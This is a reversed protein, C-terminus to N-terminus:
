RGMHRTPPAYFNTPSYTWTWTTGATPGGSMLGMSKIVIADNPYFTLGTGYSNVWKNETSSYYILSNDRVKKHENDYTYIVDGILVGNGPLIGGTWEGNEDTQILGLDAVDVAVPLNLNVLTYRPDRRGGYTVEATFIGDASTDAEAYTYSGAAGSRVWYTKGQKVTTDTSAAYTYSGETGSREFWGLGSPNMRSPGNTPVQLIPYWSMGHVPTDNVTNTFEQYEVPLTDPLTISFGRGFFGVPLETTSYDDSASNELDTTKLKMWKHNNDLWYVEASKGNQDFFEVRTSRSAATGTPWDTGFVGAMTNTWPMGQLGVLNQGELLPVRNMSYVEESALPLQQRATGANTVADQWRNHYSARYFRLKNRSLNTLSNAGGNDVQYNWNTKSTGSNKGEGSSAMFWEETGKETFTRADRWILDYEKTVKGVGDKQGAAMWFLQAGKKPPTYGEAPTLNITQMGIDALNAGALAANIDAAARVVGQTLAFKITNNTAWSATTYPGENGAKDVGVIVVVYNRDYELDFLRLTHTGMTGMGQEVYTQQASTDEIPTDKTVSTWGEGGLDELGSQLVEEWIYQDSSEKGTHRLAAEEDYEKYYVKYTEWPSLLDNAVAGEANRVSPPIAAYNENEFGSHSGPRNDDPGVDGSYWKLDFQTTPDDVHDTDAGASHADSGDSQTGFKVPTPATIDYGLAVPAVTGALADGPRDNDNDVAYLRYSGYGQNMTVSLAASRKTVADETISEGDLTLASGDGAVPSGEGPGAWEYHGIGSQTLDYVGAVLHAQAGGSRGDGDEAETFHVSLGTTDNVWPVRERETDGTGPVLRTTSKWLAVSGPAGPAVTDDDRVKLTPGVLPVANGSGDKATAQDGGRDVDDDYVHFKLKWSKSDSGSPLWQGVINTADMTNGVVPWTWSSYRSATASKTLSKPDSWGQNYATIWEVSAGEGGGATVEVAELYTNTVTFGSELSSSLTQTKVPVDNPNDSTFRRVGTQSRGTIGETQDVLDAAIVFKGDTLSAGLQSDYITHTRGSAASQQSAYGGLAYPDPDGAGQAKLLEFSPVNTAILVDLFKPTSDTVTRFKPAKVDQDLLRFNGVAGNTTMAEGADPRDHDLDTAWVNVANTVIADSEYEGKHQLYFKAAPLTWGVVASPVGAAGYDCGDAVGDAAGDGIDTTRGYTEGEVTGLTGAANTTGGSVVTHPSGQAAGTEPNLPQFQMQTVRWGSYDYFDLMFGIDAGAGASEALAHDSLSWVINTMTSTASGKLRNNASLPTGNMTVGFAGGYKRGMQPATDDDDFLLFGDTTSTCLADDTRDHDYDYVKAVLGYRSVDATSKSLPLAKTSDSLKPAALNLQASLVGNEPAGGSMEGFTSATMGVRDVELGTGTALEEAITVRVSRVSDNELSVPGATFDKWARTATFPATETKLTAGSGSLFEIKLTFGNVPLPDESTSAVVSRVRATAQASISSRGSSSITVDQYASGILSDQGTLKLIKGSETTGDAVTAGSSSLHWATTPNDTFEADTGYAINADAHESVKFTASWVETGRLSENDTNGPYTVTFEPIKQAYSEGDDEMWLGSRRTDYGTKLGDLLEVLNTWTGAKVDQDTVEGGRPASVTGLLALDQIGWSGNGAPTGGGAVEEENAVDSTARYGYLRFTKQMTGTAEQAPFTISVENTTAAVYATSDDEKVDKDLTFTVLERETRSGAVTHVKPSGVTFGSAYDANRRTVLWRFTVSDGIATCDLLPTDATGDGDKDVRISSFNIEFSDKGKHETTHAAWTYSYDEGSQSTGAVDVWPNADVNATNCHLCAQLKLTQDHGAGAQGYPGADYSVYGSLVGVMSVAESILWMKEEAPSEDKNGYLNAQSGTVSHIDFTSSVRTQATWPSAEGPTRDLAVEDGDQVTLTYKTPGAASARNRFSLTDTQWRTAETGQLAWEFYMSRKHWDTGWMNGTGSLTVFFTPGGSTGTTSWSATQTEGDKDKKHKTVGSGTETVRATTGGGAGMSVGDFAETPGSTWHAKAVEGFAVRNTGTGTVEFNSVKPETADDDSFLVKGFTLESDTQDGDRDNDRDWAHLQILNTVGASNTSIYSLINPQGFLGELLEATITGFDWALVTSPGTGLENVDRDSEYWVVTGGETRELMSRIDSKDANFKATNEAGARWGGDEHLQAYYTKGAAPTTDETKTYVYAGESGSREYLGDRKPNAVVVAETYTYPEETGSRAYYTKGAVVTKDSTKSYVGDNLEYLGQGKPNPVAEQEVYERWTADWTRALFATNTMTQEVTVTGSRDDKVDTSDTADTGRKLGTTEHTDYVNFLFSLRQGLAEDTLQYMVDRQMGDLRPLTKPGITGWSLDAGTFPTDAAANTVVLMSPEFRTDGDTAASWKESSAVPGIMDDDKVPIYLLQNVTVNRAPNPADACWGSTLDNETSLAEYSGQDSTTRSIPWPVRGEEGDAGETCGDEASVTLYLGVEPDYTPLDFVGAVHNTISPIDNLQAAANNDNWTQANLFAEDKGWELVWGHTVLDGATQPLVLRQYWNWYLTLQNAGTGVVIKDPAEKGAPMTVAYYQRGAVATSETARIYAYFEEREYLGNAAPTNAKEESTVDAYKGNGTAEWYTTGGQKTADTSPTYVYTTKDPNRWYRKESSSFSATDFTAEGRNTNVMMLDWNPSVRGYPRGDGHEALINWAYGGQSMGGPYTEGDGKARVHNTAYVGNIDEWSIAFGFTHSTSGFESDLVSYADGTREELSRYEADSLFNGVQTGVYLLKAVPGDNDAKGTVDYRRITGASLEGSDDRARVRWWFTKSELDSTKSKWSLTTAAAQEPTLEVNVRFAVEGNESNGDTGGFNETESLEVLYGTVFGDGDTSPQWVLLPSGPGSSATAGAFGTVAPTSPAENLVVGGYNFTGDMWFDIKGTDLGEDWASLAMKNDNAGYPAISVMDAAASSNKEIRVVGAGQNNWTGTNVFTAVTFRGTLSTAGEARSAYDIGLASRPVVWEVCANAADDASGAARWWAPAYWEQGDDAYMEVQWKNEGEASNVWHVAMQRAPYHIAASNTFYRGGMETASEDGIWNMKESATDMRTDVGVSVYANTAQRGTGGALKVLFFVNSSNAKVRFEQIDASPCGDHDVREEGQKDTWILEKESTTSSNWPVAPTGAWDTPDGDIEPEPADWPGVTLAYAASRPSYYGNNVTYFGYYYTEGKTLGTDTVTTGRGRYIVKARYVTTGTDYEVYDGVMYARGQEPRFHDVSIDEAAHRRAADTDGMYRVVMVEDYTETWPEWVLINRNTGGFSFEYDPNEPIPDPTEVVNPAGLGYVTYTNARNAAVSHDKTEVPRNDATALGHGYVTAGESTLRVHGNVGGVWYNTLQLRNTWMSNTQTATAATAGAPVYQFEVWTAPTRQGYEPAAATGAYSLMVETSQGDGAPTDFVRLDVWDGVHKTAATGDMWADTPVKPGLIDSWSSGWRLEDFYVDGIQGYNDQAGATFQVKQVNPLYVQSDWVDWSDPENAPMPRAAGGAGGVPKYANAWVEAYSGSTKRIKAVILYSRDAYDTNDEHFGKIDTAAAWTTTEGAGASDRASIGLTYWHDGGAKGIFVTKNDSAVLKLGAWRNANDGYAYAMRFAVYMTDGSGSYWPDGTLRREVWGETGDAALNAHLVNGASTRYNDAPDTISTAVVVQSPKVAEWTRDDGGKTWYFYGSASGSDEFGHGGQWTSGAATANTYSFPNVWETAGYSELVAATGAPSYTPATGAAFESGAYSYFVYRHTTGDKVVHELETGTGDYLKRATVGERTVSTGVAAGLLADVETQTFDADADKELIVVGDASVTETGESTTVTRDAPWAWALRVMEKGDVTATASPVPNPALPESGVISKWSTGVRVEDFDLNGCKGYGLLMIAALQPHSDLTTDIDWETPAAMTTPFTTSPTYYVKVKFAGSGTNYHAVMTYTSNDDFKYPLGDYFRSPWVTGGSPIGNGSNVTTALSLCSQDSYQHVMKGYSAFVTTHSSGSMLQVGFMGNNGAGASTRMTVMIWANSNGSIPTELQRRARVALNANDTDMAFRLMNGGAGYLRNSGVLGYYTTTGDTAESCTVSVKAEASDWVSWGQPNGADLTWGTGEQASYSALNAGTTGNTIAMADAAQCRYNGLSINTQLRGEWYSGRKWFVVFPADKAATRGEDYPWVWEQNSAASNATSHKAVVAKSEGSTLETGPTVTAGSALSAFAAADGNTVALVVIGDGPASWAMRTMEFGDPVVTFEGPTYDATEVWESYALYGAPSGYAQVEVFYETGADLGTFTHSTETTTQSVLKASCSEYNGGGYITVDDIHWNCSATTTQRFRVKQWQRRPLEVTELHMTTMGTAGADYEKLTEWDAAGDALAEVAMKKGSDASTANVWFTMTHAAGVSPSAAWGEVGTLALGYGSGRRNAAQILSQHGNASNTTWGNTFVNLVFGQAILAAKDELRALGPNECATLKVNYGSAGPVAEWEATMSNKTIDTLVPHPDEMAKEGLLRVEDIYYSARRLSSGNSDYFVVRMALQTVNDPVQWVVPNGYPTPTNKLDYDEFYFDWQGGLKTNGDSVTLGYERNYEMVKWGDKNSIKEWTTGANTSIIVHLDNGGNLNQGAFHMTLEVNKYGSLDVNDFEIAANNTNIYATGIDHWEKEGTDWNKTFYQAGGGPTWRYSGGGSLRFCHDGYYNTFSTVGLQETPEDGDSKPAYTGGAGYLSAYTPSRGDADTEYNDYWKVEASTSGEAGACLRWWGYDSDINSMYPNTLRGKKYGWPHVDWGDWGQSAIANVMGKVVDNPIESDPADTVAPTTGLTVVGDEVLAGYFYYYYKWGSLVEPDEYSQSVPTGEGQPNPWFATGTEPNIVLEYGFPLNEIDVPSAPVHREDRGRLIVVGCGQPPTWTLEVKGNDQAEADVHTPTGPQRTLTVGDLYVYHSAGGAGGCFAVRITLRAANTVAFAFPNGGPRTTKNYGRNYPWNQNMVDGGGYGIKGMPGWEKNRTTLGNPAQWTTGGDTSYSVWLNEGSALDGVAFPITAVWTNMGGIAGTDFEAVGFANGAASGSLRLARDGYLPNEGAVVSVDPDGSGKVTRVSSSGVTCWKAAFSLPRADLAGGLNDLGEFGQSKVVGTTNTRTAATTHAAATESVGDEEAFMEFWYRKGSKLGTLALEGPHDDLTSHPVTTYAGAESTVVRVKIDNLQAGKNDKAGTATLRVM